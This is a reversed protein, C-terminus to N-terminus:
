RSPDVSGARRAPLYAALVLIGLMLACTMSVTPVDFESVGFLPGAILRTGALSAGVGLTMGVAGTRLAEAVVLGTIDTPRAGRIGFERRRQSVSYVPVGYLGIGALLLAAGAFIQPSVDQVAITVGHVISFIATNAGIGLPLVAIVTLTFAPTRALLRVARRVDWYM